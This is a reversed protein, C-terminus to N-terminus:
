NTVVTKKFQNGKFKFTTQHCPKCLTRGNTMSWLEKCNLAEDFTKIKNDAIVDCFMKPYHDAELYSGRKNCMQCTFNDRSFVDNVWQKYEICRRISVVLPTIGGKWNSSKEGAWQPCKKGKNWATIGARGRFEIIGLEILVDRITRKDAQYKRAIWLIADGKEYDTLIEKTHRWAKSHRLNRKHQETKKRGTLYYKWWCSNSCTVRIKARSPFDTFHKGCLKCNLQVM